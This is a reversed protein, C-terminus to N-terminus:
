ERRDEEGSEGNQGPVDSVEGIERCWACANPRDVHWGLAVVLRQAIEGTIGGRDAFLVSLACGSLALVFFAERCSAAASQSRSYFFCPM